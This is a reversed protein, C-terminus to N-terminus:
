KVSFPSLSFFSFFKPLGDDVGDGILNKKEKEFLILFDRALAVNSM